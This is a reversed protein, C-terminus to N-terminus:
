AGEVSTFRNVSDRAEEEGGGRRVPDPSNPPAATDAAAAAKAESLALQRAKEVPNSEAAASVGGLGGALVAALSSPVHRREAWVAVLILAVLSYCVLVISWGDDIHQAEEAEEVAEEAAMEAAVAEEAAPLSAMLLRCSCFIHCFLCAARM